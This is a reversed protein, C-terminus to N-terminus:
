KAIGVKVEITRLRADRASGQHVLSQILTQQAKNQDLLATIQTGHQANKSNMEAKEAKDAEKLATIQDQQTKNQAELQAVRQELSGKPQADSVRAIVLGTVLSLAGIALSVTSTRKM